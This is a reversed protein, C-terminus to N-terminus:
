SFTVCVRNSVLFRTFIRCYSDWTMIPIIGKGWSYTGCIYCFVVVQRDSCCESDIKSITCSIQMYILMDLSTLVYSVHVSVANSYTHRVTGRRKIANKNLKNPGLYKRDVSAIRDVYVCSSPVPLLSAVSCFLFSHFHLEIALYTFTWMQLPIRCELFNEESLAPEM